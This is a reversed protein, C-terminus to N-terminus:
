RVETVRVCTADLPDGCNVEITLTVPQGRENAFPCQVTAPRGAAILQPDEGHRYEAQTIKGEREAEVGAAACHSLYDRGEAPKESCAAALAALALLLATGLQRSLRTSDM